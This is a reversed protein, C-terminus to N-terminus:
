ERYIVRMVEAISTHGLLINKIGNEIIGGRRRKLISEILGANYQNAAMERRMTDDMIFYEYLAFRGKYGTNYCHNCGGPKANYIKTDEALRLWETEEPSPLKEIKCL